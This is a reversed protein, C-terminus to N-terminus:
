TQRQNSSHFTLNDHASILQVDVSFYPNVVGIHLSAALNSYCLPM